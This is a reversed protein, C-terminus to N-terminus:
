CKIKWRTQNKKTHPSKASGDEVILGAQSLETLRPRVDFKATDIRCRNKQAYLQAIVDGILGNPSEERLIDLIQAKITEKKPTIQEHSQNRTKYTMLTSQVMMKLGRIHKAAKKTNVVKVL